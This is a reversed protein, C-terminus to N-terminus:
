NLMETHHQACHPEKKAQGSAGCYYVFYSSIIPLRPKFGHQSCSVPLTLKWHTCWPQGQVRTHQYSCYLLGTMGLAPWVSLVAPQSQHKKKGQRMGKKPWLNSPEPEGPASLWRWCCYWVDSLHEKHWPATDLKALSCSFIFKRLLLPEKPETKSWTSHKSDGVVTCPHRVGKQEYLKKLTHPIEDCEPM